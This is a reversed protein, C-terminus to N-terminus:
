YLLPPGLHLPCPSLIYLGPTCPSIYVIYLPKKKDDADMEPWPTIPM